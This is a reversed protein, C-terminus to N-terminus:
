MPPFAKARSLTKVKSHQTNKDIENSIPRFATDQMQMVYLRVTVEAPLPEFTLICM